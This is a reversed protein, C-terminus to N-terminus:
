KGSDIKWENDVKVVKIGDSKSTGDGYNITYSVNASEGDEALDAKEVSFSAIGQKSELSKGMKDSLLEVVQEKDTDSLEKKFQM